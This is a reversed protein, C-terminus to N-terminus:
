ARSELDRLHQLDTDYITAAHEASISSYHTIYGPLSGGCQRMWERHALLTSLRRRRETMTTTTSM